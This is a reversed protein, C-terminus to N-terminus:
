DYFPISGKLIAILIPQKGAYKQNIWDACKSIQKEIDEQSHLVREIRSDIM